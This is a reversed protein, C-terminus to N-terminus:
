RWFGWVFFPAKLLSGNSNKIDTTRITNCCLLLSARGIIINQAKGVIRVYVVNDFEQTLTLDHMELTKGVCHTYNLIIKIGFVEIGAVRAKVFVAFLFLFIGRSCNARPTNEIM